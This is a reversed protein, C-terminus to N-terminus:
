EIVTGIREGNLVRIINEPTGLFVVTRIKSREIIKTALLDMVVNAGARMSSRSVIEVLEGYSLKEFKKAGTEVRPDASYVGDVSTANLFLDAKVYEALLAATADTTHGPFTGGMVVVDYVRSLEEAEKFDRPIRRPAKKLAVSLLMANIRTVEIGIYDCSVEDAGLERAKGILERALKGGGVVVFIKNNKSIKEIVEAFEKIRDGLVSGGLSIVIKM